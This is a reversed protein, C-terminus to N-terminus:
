AAESSNASMTPRRGVAPLRVAGGAVDAAVPQGSMDFSVVGRRFGRSAHAAMEWARLREVYRGSLQRLKTAWIYPQRFVPQIDGISIHRPM